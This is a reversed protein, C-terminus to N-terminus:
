KSDEKEDKGFFCDFHCLKFDYEAPNAKSEHDSILVKEECIPCIM